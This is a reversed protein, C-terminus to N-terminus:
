NVFVNLTNMYVKQVARCNLSTTVIVMRMEYLLANLLSLETLQHAASGPNLGLVGIESGNEERSGVCCVTLPAKLKSVPTRPVSPFHPPRALQSSRSCLQEKGRRRRRGGEKEEKGGEEWQGM